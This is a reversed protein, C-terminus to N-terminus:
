YLLLATLCHLIQFTFICHSLKIEGEFTEGSNLFLIILTPYTQIETLEKFLKM